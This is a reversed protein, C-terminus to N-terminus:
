GNGGSRRFLVLVGVVLLGMTAPEPILEVDDVYLRQNARALNNKTEVWFVLHLDTPEAIVLETLDFQYLQWGDTGYHQEDLGGIVTLPLHLTNADNRIEAGAFSGIGTDTDGNPNLDVNLWFRLTHMGLLNVPQFFEHRNNAQADHHILRSYSGSHAQETTVRIAWTDSNANGGFGDDAPIWGLPTGTEFGGNVIGGAGAQNVLGAVCVCISFVIIRKSM